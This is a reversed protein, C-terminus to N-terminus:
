AKHNLPHRAFDPRGGPYKEYRGIVNAEKAFDKANTRREQKNEM